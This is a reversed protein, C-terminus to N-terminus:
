QYRARKVVTTIVNMEKGITPFKEKMEKLVMNAEDKTLFNGAYVRWFPANFHISVEQDAFEEKVLKQIREAETKSQQPKNDSFVQIRYGNVKDFVDANWDVPGDATQGKRSVIAEVTEDQLVKVTGQGTKTTNLEEVITEKKDQAWISCCFMILVAFVSFRIKM